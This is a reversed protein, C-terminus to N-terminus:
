RCKSVVLHQLDQRIPAGSEYGIIDSASVAPNGAILENELVSMVQSKSLSEFGAPRVLGETSAEFNRDQVSVSALSKRMGVPQSSIDDLADMIKDFGVSLSKELKNIRRTLKDNDQRLAANMALSAQLSKALIDNASAQGKAGTIMDYQLDSMSKSLVEVVATLFESAEMGKAITDNATFDEIISKEVEEASVEDEEENDGEDESEEDEEDPIEKPEESKKVDDGGDEDDESKESDDENPEDGSEKNEADDQVADDSIEEPTVDGSDSDKDDSAQSKMLLEDALSELDVLSKVLNRAM